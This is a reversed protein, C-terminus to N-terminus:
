GQYAEGNPNEDIIKEWESEIIPYDCKECFGYYAEFPFNDITEIKGNVISGCEPCKIKEIKISMKEGWIKSSYRRIAMFVM